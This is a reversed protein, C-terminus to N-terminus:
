LIFKLFTSCLTEEKLTIGSLFLLKHLLLRNKGTVFSIIKKFDGSGKNVYFHRHLSVTLEEEEKEPLKIGGGRGIWEYWGDETLWCDFSHQGNNWWSGCDDALLDNINELKTKDMIFSKNEMVHCPTVSCVVSPHPLSTTLQNLTEILSKEKDVGSVLKSSRILQFVPM